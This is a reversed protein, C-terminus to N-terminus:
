GCAIVGGADVGSAPLDYTDLGPEFDPTNALDIPTVSTHGAIAGNLLELTGWLTGEASTSIETLYYLLTDCAYAGSPADAIKPAIDCIADAEGNHPSNSISTYAGAADATSNGPCMPTGDSADFGRYLVVYLGDWQYWHAEVSESPFLAAGGENYPQLVGVVPTAPIAEVTPRSYDDYDDAESRIHDSRRGNHNAGAHCSNYGTSISAGHHRGVGILV